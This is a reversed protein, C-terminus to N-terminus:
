RGRASSSRWTRSASRSTPSRSRPRVVRQASFLQPFFLLLSIGMIIEPTVMPLLLLTESLGGVYRPACARWASGSCRAWSRRCSSPWAARGRADSLLAELMDENAFLKPYWDLTFGRGSSTDESDNFSFVILVVIPLFLFAYVLMAYGSLLPNRERRM